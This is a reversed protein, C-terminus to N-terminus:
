RQTNHAIERTNAAIRFLVVILELYLRLVVVYLFFGLPAIVFMLLGLGGAQRPNVGALSAGITVGVAALMNVAMVLLGIIIGVAYIVAVIKQTIFYSFSFDLLSAWFGREEEPMGTTTRTRQGTNAPLITAATAPQYSTM